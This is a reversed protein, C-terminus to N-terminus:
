SCQSTTSKAAPAASSSTSTTVRPKKSSPKQRKRESVERSHTGKTLTLAAVLPKYDIIFANAASRTSDKLPRFRGATQEHDCYRVSEELIFLHDEPTNPAPYYPM